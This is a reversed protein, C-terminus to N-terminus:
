SHIRCMARFTVNRAHSLGVFDGGPGKTYSQPNLFFSGDIRRTEPLKAVELKNISPAACEFERGLVSASLMGAAYLEIGWSIWPSKQM